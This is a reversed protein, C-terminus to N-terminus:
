LVILDSGWECDVEYFTGGSCNEAVFKEVLKEDAALVYYRRTEFGEAEWTSEDDPDFGPALVEYQTKDEACIWVRSGDDLQYLYPQYSDSEDYLEVDVIKNGDYTTGVPLQPHAEIAVSM